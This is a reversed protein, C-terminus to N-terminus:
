TLQSQTHSMDPVSNTHLGVLLKLVGHSQSGPDFPFVNVYLILDRNELCTFPFTFLLYLCYLSGGDHKLSYDVLLMTLWM